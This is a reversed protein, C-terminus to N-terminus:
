FGSGEGGSGVRKACIRRCGKKPKNAKKVRAQKCKSIADDIDDCEVKKGKVELWAAKCSGNEKCFDRVKNKKGEDLKCKEGDASCCLQDEDAHSMEFNALAIILVFLIAFKM